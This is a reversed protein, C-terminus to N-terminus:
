SGSATRDDDEGQNRIDDSDLRGPSGRRCESAATSVARRHKPAAWIGPLAAASVDLDIDLPYHRLLGLAVSQVLGDITIEEASALM